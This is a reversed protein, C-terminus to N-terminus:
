RHPWSSPLPFPRYHSINQENDNIIENGCRVWAHAKFLEDQTDPLIGGIELQCDIHRKHLFNMLVLSRALCSTQGLGHAAALNVMRAIRRAKTLQAASPPQLRAIHASQLKVWAVKLGSRVLTRNMLPLQLLSTLLYRWDM